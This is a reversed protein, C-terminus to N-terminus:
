GVRRLLSAAALQEAVNFVFPPIDGTRALVVASGAAAAGLAAAERRRGPLSGLMGALSALAAVHLWAYAPFPWAPLRRAAFREIDSARIALQSVFLPAGAVLAGAAAAGYIRARGPPLALAIRAFAAPVAATGAAALHEGVVWARHGSRLLELRREADPETYVRPVPSIGIGWLVAAAIAVRAPRRVADPLQAAM